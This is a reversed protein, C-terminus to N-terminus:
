GRQSMFPAPSLIKNEMAVLMPAAKVLFAQWEPDGQMNARRRARDALDEYGWLHVIQNLPGIDMSTYWGLPKGLHRSQAPLGEREYLELYTKLTGPKLTYTRHDVIM